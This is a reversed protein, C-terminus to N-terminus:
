FKYSAGFLVKQQTASFDGIDSGFDKKGFDSYRYEGRVLINDTIAHEVGAGATWGILIDDKKGIAPADVKGVAAAVGGTAFVLTRDFAYGVRARGSADWQLDANDGKEFNYNFDNEIGYVINGTQFNYGVHAGASGSNLSQDAGFYKAKNWSYGGQAGLYFGSWNYASYAQQEPQPASQDAVMDAANAAVASSLVLTGFVFVKIHM